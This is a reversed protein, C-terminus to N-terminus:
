SRGGIVLSLGFLALAVLGLALAPAWLIGYGSAVASIAFASAGGVLRDSWLEARLGASRLADKNIM